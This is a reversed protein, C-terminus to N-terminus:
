GLLVAVVDLLLDCLKLLGPAPRSTVSASATVALASGPFPLALGAWSVRWHALSFFASPLSANWLEVALRCHLVALSGAVVAHADLFTLAALSPAAVPQDM